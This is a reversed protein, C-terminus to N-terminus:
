RGTAAALIQQQPWGSFPRAGKRVRAINTALIAMTLPM